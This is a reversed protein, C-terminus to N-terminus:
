YNIQRTSEAESLRVNSVFWVLREPAAATADIKFVIIFFALRSM